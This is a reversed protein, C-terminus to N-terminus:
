SEIVIGGIDHSLCALRGALCRELAGIDGDALSSAPAQPHVPILPFRCSRWQIKKHNKGMEHGIRPLNPDHDLKKQPFGM